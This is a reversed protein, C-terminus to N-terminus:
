RLLGQVYPLKKIHVIKLVKSSWSRLTNYGTNEPCGDYTVIETYDTNLVIDRQSVLKVATSNRSGGNQPRARSTFVVVPVALLDCQKVVDHCVGFYDNTYVTECRQKAQAVRRKIYSRMELSM